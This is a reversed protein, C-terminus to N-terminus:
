DGAILRRVEYLVLGLAEHLARTSLVFATASPVWQLEPRTPLVSASFRTPAALVELGTRQFVRVSRGMHLADTVLLVRTIEEEALIRQSFQANQATTLSEHELWRASINLPQLSHQMLTAMSLTEGVLRGGTLLLPLQTQQHLYAAYLVRERTMFDVRDHEAYEPNFQSRGASLVVIAQPQFADIEARSVAPHWEVWSALQRATFPLSCLLWGLMSVLLMGRAFKPRWWYCLMALLLGLTLLGAPTFLWGRLVLYWVFDMCGDMVRSFRHGLNPQLGRFIWPQRKKDWSLLM